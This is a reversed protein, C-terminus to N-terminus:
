KDNRLWEKIKIIYPIDQSFDFEIWGDLDEGEFLKKFCELIELDNEIIKLFDLEKETYRIDKCSEYILLKLAQAADRSTM